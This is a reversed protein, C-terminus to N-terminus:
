PEATLAILFPASRTMASVFDLTTVEIEPRPNEWTSLYVRHNTNTGTWAVKGSEGASPDNSAPVCDHVDRGYIM